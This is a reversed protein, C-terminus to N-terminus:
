RDQPKFSCLCMVVVKICNDMSGGGFYHNDLVFCFRPGDENLCGKLHGFVSRLLDGGSPHFVFRNNLDPALCIHVASAWPSALKELFSYPFSM